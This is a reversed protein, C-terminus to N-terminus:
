GLSLDLKHILDFYLDLFFDASRKGNLYSLSSKNAVKDINLHNKSVSLSRLGNQIDRLSGIDGFQM